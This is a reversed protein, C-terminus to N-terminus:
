SSYYTKQILWKLHEENLSNNTCHTKEVKEINIREMKPEFVM